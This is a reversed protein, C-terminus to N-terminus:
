PAVTHFAIRRQRCHHRINGNIAAPPSDGILLDRLIGGRASSLFSFVLVGLLDLHAQIGVSAGEAAFCATGLLDLTLLFKNLAARTAESM